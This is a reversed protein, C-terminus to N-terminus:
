LELEQVVENVAEGLLSFSAPREDKCINQYEEKKGKYIERLLNWAQPTRVKKYQKTFNDCQQLQVYHYDDSKDHKENKLIIYQGVSDLRLLAIDYSYKVKGSEIKKMTLVHTSDECYTLGLDLEKNARDFYDKFLLKTAKADTLHNEPIREFRLQYDMDFGENGILVLNRKTSGVLFENFVWKKKGFDRRLYERVLPLLKREFDERAAIKTPDKRKIYEM